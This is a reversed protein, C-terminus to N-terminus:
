LANLVKGNFSKKPEALLMGGDQQMKEAATLAINYSKTTACKSRKQAPPTNECRV